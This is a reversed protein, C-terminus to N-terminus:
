ADVEQDVDHLHHPYIILSLVLLGDVLLVVRLHNCFWKINTQQQKSRSLCEVVPETPLSGETVRPRCPELGQAATGPLGLRPTRIAAMRGRGLNVIEVLM